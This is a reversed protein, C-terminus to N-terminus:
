SHRKTKHLHLVNKSLCAFDIYIYIYIYIYISKSIYQICGERGYGFNYQSTFFDVVPTGVRDFILGLTLVTLFIVFLKGRM